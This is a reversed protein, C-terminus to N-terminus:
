FFQCFMTFEPALAESNKLAMSTFGCCYKAAFYGCTTIFENVPMM